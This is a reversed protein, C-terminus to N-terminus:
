DGRGKAPCLVESRLIKGPPSEVTTSLPPQIRGTMRRDPCRRKTRPSMHQDEMLTEQRRQPGKMILVHRLEMVHYTYEVEHAWQSYLQEM